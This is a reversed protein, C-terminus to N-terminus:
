WFWLSGSSTRRSLPTNQEDAEYPGQATSGRMTKGGGGRQATKLAQREHHNKGRSVLALRQRVRGHRHVLQHIAPHVRLRNRLPNLEVVRAYRVRDGVAVAQAMRAGRAGASSGVIFPTRVRPSPHHTRLM